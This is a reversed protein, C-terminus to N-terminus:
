GPAGSGAGRLKSGLSRLSTQRLRPDALGPHSPMELGTPPLSPGPAQQPQNFSPHRPTAGRLKSGLRRLSTQRLRLDALGTHSPMELGTPLLSPGPAQLPQNLTLHRPTEQGM